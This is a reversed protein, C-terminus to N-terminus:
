IKRLEMCSLRLEKWMFKTISKIKRKEKKRKCELLTLIIYKSKITKKLKKKYMLIENTWINM